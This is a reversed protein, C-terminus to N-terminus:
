KINLSSINANIAGLRTLIAAIAMIEDISVTKRGIYTRLASMVLSRENADLELAPVKSVENAM